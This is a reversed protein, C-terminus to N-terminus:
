TWGHRWAAIIDALISTAIEPPTAAGIPLGVPGHIRAIAHPAVGMAALAECRKAHTKRSGLAGVYFAPTSLVRALVAADYDHEHSLLVFSTWADIGDGGIAEPSMVAGTRFGLEMLRARTSADTPMLIQEQEALRCMQALMPMIPGNGALVIRCDPRYARFFLGDASQRTKMTLGEYIIKREHRLTDIALTIPRRQRRAAMLRAVLDQAIGTDFHIDIGSGCPLRLDIFRSGKGYREVHCSRDRIAQLADLVLTRELCGSSILGASQGDESVAMQSGLPRPSSGEVNVLTILAVRRDNALAAEVFPLVCDVYATPPLDLVTKM